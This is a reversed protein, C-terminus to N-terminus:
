VGSGGDVGSEDDDVTGALVYPDGPAVEELITDLDGAGADTDRVDRLVQELRTEAAATVEAESASETRGAAAVEPGAASPAPAGPGAPRRLTVLVGIGAAAVLVAAALFRGRWRTAGRASEIRERLRAGFSAWYVPGPEPVDDDCLGAFADELRAADTRCAPCADLHSELGAREDVGIEGAVAAAIADRFEDCRNV